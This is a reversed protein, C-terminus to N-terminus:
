TFMARTRPFIKEHHRTLTSDLKLNECQLHPSEMRVVYRPCFQTPATHKSRLNTFSSVVQYRRAFICFANSFKAVGFVDYWYQDEMNSATPFASTISGTDDTGWNTPAFAGIGYFFRNIPDYGIDYFEAFVKTETGTNVLSYLFMGEDSTEYYMYDSTDLSEGGTAVLRMIPVVVGGPPSTPSTLPPPSPPIPISMVQDILAPGIRFQTRIDQGQYTQMHDNPIFNVFAISDGDQVLPPADQFDGLMDTETVEFTGVNKLKYWNPPISAPDIRYRLMTSEAPRNIVLYYMAGALSPGTFNARIGIVEHPDGQIVYAPGLSWKSSTELNGYNSDDASSLWDDLVNVGFWSGQKVADNYYESAATTQPLGDPIYYPNYFSFKANGFADYWYQDEM